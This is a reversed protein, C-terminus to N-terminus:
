GTQKADRVLQDFLDDKAAIRKTQKQCKASM